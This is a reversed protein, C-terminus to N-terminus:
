EASAAAGGASPGGSPRKERGRAGTWPEDPFVWRRYNWPWQEPHSRIAREIVAAFRQTLRDVRHMTVQQRAAASEAPAALEEEDWAVTEVLLRYQMPALRVCFVALVTAGTRLALTAPGAVFETPQGFFEVVPGRLGDPKQDMAFGVTDGQRLALVMERLLARRGAWLVRTGARRRMAALLRNAPAIRSPKAVEFFRKASAGAVFAGILEWAGLHATILVQGRRREEARELAVRLDGLGEVVLREPRQIGHVTELAAVAQHRFVDREMRRGRQSAPDVDLVRALNRRLIGRERRSALRYLGGLASGVSPVLAEPIALLTRHALPVIPTLLADRLRRRWSSVTEAPPPAEGLEAPPIPEAPSSM